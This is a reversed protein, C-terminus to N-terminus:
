NGFNHIKAEPPQVTEDVLNLLEIFAEENSIGKIKALFEVAGGAEATAHDRWGRGEYCVSFSPSRDERFPSRCPSGPDGRLNFLRWLVPITFGAKAEEIGTRPMPSAAVSVLTREKTPLSVARIEIRGPVESPLELV